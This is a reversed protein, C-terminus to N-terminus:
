VFRGERRGWCDDREGSHCRQEVKWGLENQIDDVLKVSEPSSRWVNEVHLIITGFRQEVETTGAMMEPVDSLGWQM